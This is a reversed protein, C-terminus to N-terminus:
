GISILPHIADLSTLHHACCIWFMNNRLSKININQIQYPLWNKTWYYYNMLNSTQENLWQQWWMVKQHNTQTKEVIQGQTGFLNFVNTSICTGIKTWYDRRKEFFITHITYKFFFLSFHSYICRGDVHLCWHCMLSDHEM